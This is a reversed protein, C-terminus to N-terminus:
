RQKRIEQELRRKLEPDDPVLGSELARDEAIQNARWRSIAGVIIFCGAFVAIFAYGV